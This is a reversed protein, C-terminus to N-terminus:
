LSFLDPCIWQYLYCNTNNVASKCHRSYMSLRSGNRIHWSTCHIHQVLNQRIITLM